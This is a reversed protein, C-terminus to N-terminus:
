SCSMGWRGYEFADKRRLETREKYNLTSPLTVNGQLQSFTDQLQPVSSLRNSRTSTKAMQSGSFYTAQESSFNSHTVIEITM